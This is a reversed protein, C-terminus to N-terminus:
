QEYAEDPLEYGNDEFWKIAGPHMPTVNHKINEPITEVSAAHVEMLRDNQNMIQDVIEYVLSDPLDKHAIAMNWMTVTNIDETLSDYTDAPIVGESFFPYTEIIKEIEDREFGFINIDNIAEAESVAPIPIGASFGTAPLLGDLVQSALDSNGAFVPESDTELLELFRPFYTGATGGSPGVGIKMGEEFDAVSKIGSSELAWWHFYTTYMPFIVRFKQLKNGDTWDELGHWAEYAPGVTVMGLEIEDAEILLINHNPGDTVEISVDVGTAESIMDGVGSGYIHYAGGVSATGMTMSTPWDEKGASSSEAEENTENNVNTGSGNTNSDNQEVEKNVATQDGGCAVALLAVLVLFSAFLLNRLNM